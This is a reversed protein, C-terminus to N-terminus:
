VAWPIWHGGTSSNDAAAVAVAVAVATVSHYACCGAHKAAACTGFPVVKLISVIMQNNLNKRESRKTVGVGCNAPVM